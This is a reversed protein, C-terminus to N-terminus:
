PHSAAQGRCAAPVYRKLDETTCAWSLHRASDANPVMLISGQINPPVEISVTLVGTAADIAVGRVFRSHPSATSVMRDVDGAVPLVGTQEYQRGVARAVDAGVLVAESVKAKVTYTQYAPLAVAALVGVVAVIALIAVIIVVISSTGGAAELRAVMQEKSGGRARVDRIKKVCQRYYWGNAMMAPVILQGLWWAFALPVAASPLAATIVRLVLWPAVFYILAGLWMKRYLLWYWTVLMAPWHWAASDGRALREFRTLYYSTNSHGIVAGWAEEDTLVASDDGGSGIYAATPPAFRDRALGPGRDGLTAGSPTAMAMAPRAVAAAPVALPELRVPLRTPAVLPRRCATCFLASDANDQGCAHCRM